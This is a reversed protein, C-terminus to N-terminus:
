QGTITLKKGGFDVSKEVDMTLQGGQFRLTYTESHPSEIYRLKLQITRDDLWAYSGAVQSPPLGEMSGRIGEVLYPGKKPTSGLHWDQKKFFLPYTGDNTKLIMRFLEDQFTVYINQIGLENTPFFYQKKKPLASKEPQKAEGKAMLLALSILRNKVAGHAPNPPLPKKHFGPLLHDWVLNLAGQLDSSEETIAIVADQEPLVLMYQGYAGDGRYSNHRSRWMQYGYGQAWDTKARDEPKMDPDQLIKMTTADEVWEVPLVQQGNWKGKQLFLQAFKAMDETKIRLGWGGVQYGQLDEEWDAGEIGLPEFLRPNLYEILSQGTVRQVIVGAMYTALSNYLFKTGPPDVVPTNLFGHIWDDKTSAITFSPDPAQGATMTLLDRITMAALNPSIEMGNTYDPFFSVVKDTLTLKGEGVALGVATATFSKSCSYMTHRLDPRYPSWWAEAVVKGHRLIMFSHFEHNSKEIANLFSQIAESSVGEAEPTSRPLAASSAPQAFASTGLFIGLFVALFLPRLSKM